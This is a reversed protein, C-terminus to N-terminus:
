KRKEPGGLTRIPCKKMVGTNWWRQVPQVKVHLDGYQEALLELATERLRKETEDLMDEELDGKHRNGRISARRIFCDEFFGAEWALQLVRDAEEMRGLQGMLEAAGITRALDLAKAAGLVVRGPEVEVAPSGALNNAIEEPTKGCKALLRAELDAARARDHGARVEDVPRLKSRDYRM